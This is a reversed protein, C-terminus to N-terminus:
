ALALRQQKPTLHFFGKYAKIFHSTDAYGAAQAIESISSRSNIVLDHAHELKARRLWASPPEGFERKFDRQFSSVSRGSLLAYDAITLDALAHARMVQKINRRVRRANENILFGHLQGHRDHLHLLMLIELLKAKVLAPPATLTDYVKPLADMYARLCPSGEFLATKSAPPSAADRSTAQLFDAIVAQNFFFLWAELPGTDSSFDSVMHHHRPVLLTDGATVVTETGDADHFTERGRMVYALCPANSFFETGFASQNLRKHFIGAQGYTMIDRAGTFQYLGEPILLIEKNQM